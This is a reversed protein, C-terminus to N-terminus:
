DDCPPCPPLPTMLAGRIYHKCASDTQGRPDAASPVADVAAAGRKGDHISRVLALAVLEFFHPPSM